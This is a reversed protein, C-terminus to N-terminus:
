NTPRTLNQANRRFLPAHNHECNRVTRELNGCIYCFIRKQERCEKWIHGTKRCNWCLPGPGANTQQPQINSPAARKSGSQNVKLSHLTSEETSNDSDSEGLDLHHVEKRGEQPRYFGPDNADIKHNVEILDELNEIDLVSLRSRYHPRMNEWILEFLTRSSFPRQLCQNLKEVETVFAIFTEGKKQKLERIQSRIGRDRNPNGYRFRIESEFKKWTSLHSERTFWWDYAEGKLRKHINMLLEGKPVGEHRALKQIRTLFDEVQISRSDGSFNLDWSEVRSKGYHRRSYEPSSSSYRRHRRGSSNRNHRHDKESDYESDSSSYSKQRSRGSKRSKFREVSSESSHRNRSGKRDLSRNRQASRRKNCEPPRSARRDKRREENYDSEDQWDRHSKRSKSSEPPRRDGRFRSDKMDLSRDRSSKLSKHSKPPGRDDDSEGQSEEERSHRQSHQSKNSKPPRMEVKEKREFHKRRAEEYLRDQKWLQFEKWEEELEKQKEIEDEHSVTKEEKKNRDKEKRIQQQNKEKNQEKEKGTADSDENRDKVESGDTKRSERDTEIEGDNLEAYVKQNFSKLIEAIQECLKAQTHRESDDNTIATQARIFYHRLRSIHALDFKKSLNSELVKITKDIRLVEDDFNHKGILVSKAKKEELLLRRLFRRKDELTERRDVDQGRLKLDFDVEEELLHDAVPLVYPGSM